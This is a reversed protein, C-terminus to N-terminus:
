LKRNGVVHRVRFDTGFAETVPFFDIKLHMLRISKSICITQKESLLCDLNNKLNFTIRALFNCVFYSLTSNASQSHCFSGCVSIVRAPTVWYVTVSVHRRRKSM